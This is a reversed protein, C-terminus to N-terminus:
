FPNLTVIKESGVLGIKRINPVVHSHQGVFELTM